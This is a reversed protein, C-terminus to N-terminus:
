EAVAELINEDVLIRGCHECAIVKKRTGLELQIQPPVQNYCGGCSGRQVTAVAVGNRYAGRLKRYSKMLREEIGKQAKTSQKKLKLEEKETKEIIKGLAVKKDKLAEQKETLRTTVNKLTEKKAAVQSSGERSRKESLQIELRQMELEKSLADYERNNKVNDMQKEYKTILGEAEKINTKHKSLEGELHEINSQLREKRTELGAIEDELDSVEIPLEGKLISIEDIESDILQLNYLQKLKDSISLENMTMNKIKIHKFLFGRFILHLTLLIDPFPNDYELIIFGELEIPTLILKSKIFM